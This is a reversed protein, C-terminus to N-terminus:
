EPEGACRVVAVVHGDPDAHYAAEDGWPRLAPASLLRAGLASLRASAAAVDDVFLYLEAPSLGGAPAAVPLAGTNRAYGERRYLGIRGGGDAELEVYVPTEAAVRWGFAERYFAASRAADAVALVTIRLTATM